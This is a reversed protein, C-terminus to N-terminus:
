HCARRWFFAAFRFPVKSLRLVALDQAGECAVGLDPNVKITPRMFTEGDWDLAWRAVPLIQPPPRKYRARMLEREWGKSSGIKGVLIMFGPGKLCWGRILKIFTDAGGGGDIRLAIRGKTGSIEARDDGGRLYIRVERTEEPHFTRQFYLAEREGGAGEILGIRVVLDGNPMHECQVYEDQDTAQIEPQRTILKYYESAFEPLADRRSKLAEALTEGVLKYHPQPLKRVADEIVPDPLDGCFAKVVSDWAAKDLEVLFERDLEWGTTTLSLQSPYKDGFEIIQRPLPNRAVAMVLGTFGIFAKDRDEPIPLWIYSDGDSFAGM